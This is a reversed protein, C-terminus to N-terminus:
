NGQWVQGAARLARKADSRYPSDEPGLELFRKWHVLARPASGLSSAALHHAEWLWAPPIKEDKALEIAKELQAAAEANKHQNHLVKGHRFLWTPNKGDEAIALQWEALSEGMRGMQFYAQALDAHAEFRSPRLELAKKFDIIADGAGGQRLSLVGRQWYADALGQDLDLAANLSQKALAVQGAENAVWGVYMRYEARNPDLDTAEQLRKLAEVNRGQLFLARGLCHHVEAVRSRVKAVEELIKQAAEGQGVAVRGCGVRLKLDADQPDKSLALEYEELAEDSRGSQELLLGRELPLGPLNKDMKAVREFAKWAEEFRRLRRLASGENFAATVDTPDLRKAARFETLAAEYRGQSLAVRGLSNKLLVSKPFKKQAEDLREHADDLKNVRSLSQALAVYADIVVPAEGGEEIAVRYAAQAQQSEGSADALKGTWYAVSPLKGFQQALPVLVARAKEVRDLSLLCKAVGLKAEVPADERAAVLEYRALAAAYRGSAYHTDALGVSPRMAQADAEVALTFEGEAKSLRGRALHIEGLLTHALVGEAPSAAQPKELTQDISAMAAKEDGERYAIQASMLKAGVHESNLALARALSTKAAALDDVAFQARALGFWTWASPHSSAVAQWAGVAAVGGGSALAVEAALVRTQLDDVNVGRQAAAWDRELAAQAARAAGLYATEPDVEKQLLQDLLVKASARTSDLGGYRVALSFQVFSCYAKLPAFRTARGRTQECTSVVTQVQQYDDPDLQRTVDAVVSQLLQEHASRNLQDSIFHVGFPGVDPLLALAGGGLAGALLGALLWKGVSRKPAAAAPVPASAAPSKPVSASPRAITGEDGGAVREVTPAQEEQPIAGFEEGDDATDFSTGVDLAHTGSDGSLNVEGYTEPSSEAPSSLATPSQGFDDDFDHEFSSGASVPRGTRSRSSEGSRSPAAFDFASGSTASPPSSDLSFVDDDFGDLDGDDVVTAAARRSPSLELDPLNPLVPSATDESGVPPLSELGFDAAAVPPLEQEPGFDNPGDNQISRTLEKDFDAAPSPLEVADDVSFGQSSAGSDVPRLSGLDSESLPIISDSSMGGLEAEPEM